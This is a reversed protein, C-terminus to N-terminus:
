YQEAQSINEQAVVPIRKTVILWLIFIGMVIWGATGLILGGWATDLGPKLFILPIGATANIAGHALATAWPSRTNLYLWGMIIGLLVCGVTMIVNGLYPHLPFNLGQMIAPAHWIGWILGSIVMARWQGLPLLKPLLYGRWGIEEGLAFIVNILPALTIAFAIQIATVIETSPVNASSPAQALANRMLTLNSDFKGTGILVTIGLTALSLLTPLLWAWLYFRKPGLTKLRLSGFPKKEIMMTTIIAALGPGWMALAFFITRILEVPLNITQILVLPALFLIWSITFAIGLFWVLPKREIM